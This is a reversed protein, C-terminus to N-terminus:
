GNWEMEYAWMMEDKRPEWKVWNNVGYIDTLTYM